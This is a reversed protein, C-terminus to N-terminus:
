CAISTVIVDKTASSIKIWFADKGRRDYSFTSGSQQGRTVCGAPAQYADVDYYHVGLSTSTKGTTLFWAAHYSNQSFITVCPPFAGVYTGSSGSWCNSVDLDHSAQNRVVGGCGPTPCTDAMAPEAQAVALGGLLLSLAGAWALHKPSRKKM